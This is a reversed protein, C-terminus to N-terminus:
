SSEIDASIAPSLATSRERERIREEEEKAVLIQACFEAFSLWYTEKVLIINIIFDLTIIVPRDVQLRQLLRARSERWVPCSTLTHESTDDEDACHNCGPTEKKGIRWLFHGFSGHGTMM